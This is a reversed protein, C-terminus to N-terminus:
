CAHMGYQEPNHGIRTQSVSFSTIQKIFLSTIGMSVCLKGNVILM